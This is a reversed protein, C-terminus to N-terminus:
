YATFVSITNRLSEVVTEVPLEFNKSIILVGDMDEAIWMEVSMSPDVYGKWNEPQM